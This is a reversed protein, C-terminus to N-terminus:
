SKTLVSALELPPIDVRPRSPRRQAPPSEVVRESAGDGDGDGGDGAGDGGDGDLDTFAFHASDYDVFGDSDPSAPVRVRGNATSPREYESPASQAVVDGATGPANNNDNGGSGNNNNNDDDCDDVYDEDDDDDNDDRNDDAFPDGGAPSSPSVCAAAAASPSSVDGSDNGGRDGSGQM